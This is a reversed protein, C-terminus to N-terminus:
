VKPWEYCKADVWKNTVINYILFLCSIVIKNCKYLIKDHCPLQWTALFSNKDSSGLNELNNIQAFYQLVQAILASM